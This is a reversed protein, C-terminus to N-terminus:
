TESGLTRALVDRQRLATKISDFLRLFRLRDDDTPVEHAKPDMECLDVVLEKGKEKEKRILVELARGALGMRRLHDQVRFYVLRPSTATPSTKETLIAFGFPFRLDPKGGTSDSRDGESDPSLQLVFIGASEILEPNKTLFLEILERETKNLRREVDETALLRKVRTADSDTTEPQLSGLNLADVDVQGIKLNLHRECFSQFRAGYNSASITWTVRFMPAWSWHRFFNMWGRNDPHNLEQELRLDLYVDEMLDLAANCIYFGARLEEATGPLRERLSETARARLAERRRAFLGYTPELLVRWEPYIQENLFTLDKNTRLENYIAAVAEAHKSFSEKIAASPPYWRQALDVFLEEKTRESLKELDDVAGFVNTTVHYGLARYSEFQSEDFWQDATTQHPFEPNETAYRLVDTPEDGTLSSKLYVLIGDRGDADVRSYHIKGIACHWDSYGKESRHRIPEVDIEVDIGLDSRCKEIANGLGGFGFSHDEEADCAVIFRCRRRVLEYTGLNEFHGGDSLYVFKGEDSTLGFLERLLSLLVNGPSSKIYTKLKRTNGLWWGLRVNFVTMLFASAPSTHYGMNPSAAAGSIAMATALTVPSPSAAYEVTPSYGPPLEPFEYGCYKPTFVFSAAKRQQWALEKGGVLNLAANIILYPATMRGKKDILDDYLEWLNFDDDAAFGTFPQARRFRNSAGLYCRGLRNRYLLHMSFQNIDLRWSFLGSVLIAAGALIGLALWSNSEDMMQWHRALFVPISAAKPNSLALDGTMAPRLLWDIGWSLFLFLGLIFIYPAVQAVLDRIKSSKPGGTSASRAAFVGWLTSAIWGASLALSSVYDFFISAYFATGFLAIWLLSYILLWAGLRSWWERVQDPLTRGLLGIHLTLVLMSLSIISPTGWAMVEWLTRGKFLQYLARVGFGGLFSAAGICISELAISEFIPRWRPPFKTRLLRIKAAEWAVMLLRVVFVLAAALGGTVLACKLASWPVIAKADPHLRTRMALVGPMGDKSVDGFFFLFMAVFAAVFLPGVVLWQIQIQTGGADLASGLERVRMNQFRVGKTGRLGIVGPKWRQGRLRPFWWLEERAVRQTNITEDNIRVTINDKACTIELADWQPRSAASRIPEADDIAGASPTRADGGGLHVVHGKTSTLQGEPAELRNQWVCIASRGGPVATFETQLIFDDYVRDYWVDSSRAADAVPQTIPKGDATKWNAKQKDELLEIATRAEFEKRSVGPDRQDFARRRFFRLSRTIMGMAIAVALIAVAAWWRYHDYRWIELSAMALLRPLLLLFTMAAILVTLNLILNRMYTAIVTWMDAGLWGLKPTLYNSFRRLFHIEAPETHGAQRVWEPRLCEAVDKVGRRKIWAMLWSGIYGGGSVTSLYDFKSLLRMEALAQLVGLNFTASRIGGGSFALGVLRKRHAREIPDGATAEDKDGVHNLEESLVHHFDFSWKAKSPTASTPM